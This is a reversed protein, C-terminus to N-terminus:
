INQHLDTYPILALYRAIKIAKSLKRQFKSSVGTIRSPMIKNCETIYKKLIDINKYDIEKFKNLKFYCFKKNKNLKFM